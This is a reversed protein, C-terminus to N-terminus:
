GVFAANRLDIKQATTSKGAARLRFLPMWGGLLLLNLHLHFTGMRLAHTSNRIPLFVAAFPTLLMRPFFERGAAATM